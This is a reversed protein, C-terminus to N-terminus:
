LNVLGQKAGLFGRAFAFKVNHGSKDMDLPFIHVVHLICCFIFNWEQAYQGGGVACAFQIDFPVCLTYQMPEFVYHSLHKNRELSKEDWGSFSVPM